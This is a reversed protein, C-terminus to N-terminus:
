WKNGSDPSLEDALQDLDHLAGAVGDTAKASSSGSSSGGQGYGRESASLKGSSVPEEMAASARRAMDQLNDTDTKDDMRMRSGSTASDKIQQPTRGTINEITFDRALDQRGEAYLLYRVFFWTSFAFGVLKLAPPILPVREIADLVANAVYLVALAGAGLALTPNRDEAPWAQWREVLNNWGDRLSASPDDDYGTSYGRYGSNWRNTTSSIEDEQKSGGKFM